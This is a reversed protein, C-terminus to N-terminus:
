AIAYHTAQVKLARRKCLAFQNATDFTCHEIYCYIDAFAGWSIALVYSYFERFIIMTLEKDWLAKSMAKSYEAFCSHELVLAILKIVRLSIAADTDQIFTQIDIPMDGRIFGDEGVLIGFM